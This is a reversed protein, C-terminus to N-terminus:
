PNNNQTPSEVVIKVEPTLRTAPTFQKSQIATSLNNNFGRLIGNYDVMLSGLTGSSISTEIATIHQGEGDTNKESIIRSIRGVQVSTENVGGVNIVSQGLKLNEAGGLKISDFKM